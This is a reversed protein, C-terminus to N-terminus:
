SVPITDHIKDPLTQPLSVLGISQLFLYADKLSSCMKVNFHFLGAFVNALHGIFYDNSIILMWGTGAMRGSIHRNISRIDRPYSVAKTADIIYHLPSEVENEMILAEHISSLQKVDDLTITDTFQVYFVRDKLLWRREFSM